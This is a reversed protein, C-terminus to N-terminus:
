QKVSSQLSKNHKIFIITTIDAFIISISVSPHFQELARNSQLKITPNHIIICILMRNSSIRWYFSSFCLSDYTDLCMSGNSDTSQQSIHKALISSLAWTMIYYVPTSRLSSVALSVHRVRLSRLQSQSSLNVIITQLLWELTLHYCGLSKYTSNGQDYSQRTFFFVQAIKIM